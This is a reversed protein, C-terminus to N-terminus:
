LLFIGVFHGGRGERGMTTPREPSHRIRLWFTYHDFMSTMSISFSFLSCSDNKEHWIYTYPLPRRTGHPCKTPVKEYDSDRKERDNGRGISDPQRNIYSNTEPKPFFLLFTDFLIWLEKQDTDDALCRPQVVTKTKHNAAELCWHRQHLCKQIISM